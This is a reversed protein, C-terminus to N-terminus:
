KEMLTDVSPNKGSLSKEFFHYFNNRVESDSNKPLPHLHAVSESKNSGELQDKEFVLSKFAEKLTQFSLTKGNSSKQISCDRNQEKSQFRSLGFSSSLTRNNNSNLGNEFECKELAVSKCEEM